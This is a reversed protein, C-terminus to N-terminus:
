SHLHETMISDGPLFAELDRFLFLCFRIFLRSLTLLLLLYGGFLIQYSIPMNGTGEGVGRLIKSASLFPAISDSYKDYTLHLVEGIPLSDHEDVCALLLM